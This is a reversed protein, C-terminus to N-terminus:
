TVASSRAGSAFLGPAAIGGLIRLTQWSSIPRPQGPRCTKIMRVKSRIPCFPTEAGSHRPATWTLTACSGAADTNLQHGDRADIVAAFRVAIRALREFIARRHGL